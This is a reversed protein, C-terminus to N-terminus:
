AAKKSKKQPPQHKWRRHLWFYQDPALRILNELATTYRQTIAKVADPRGAYDRPDIFDSSLIYYRDKEGGWFDARAPDDLRPVGIVALPVDFELALLAVAKFTSAPRGFFDVFQGKLGADQDALTAIKGGSALLGQIDDFDGKKALVKQGTKERFSRLYQDLYPNDLTRAIAHTRFGFLGLIYGAIEWNGLHGTVMLLPRDDLLARILREGNEIQLYKKWTTPFLRRPFHIIEILLLCFHRYVRRIMADRQEPTMQPYAHRLNDDAVQRHRRDLCYALWGLWGALRRAQQVSLMEVFCVLVRVILYLAYDLLRSRARAM